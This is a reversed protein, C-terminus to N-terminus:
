FSREVYLKREIQGIIYAKDEESRVFDIVSTDFTIENQKEFGYIFKDYYTNLKKLYTLSLDKDFVQGREKVRKQLVHADCKLNIFFDPETINTIVLNYLKNYNKFENLSLINKEYLFPVFVFADEYISRDLITVKDDLYAALHHEARSSLFYTQLHFAWKPMDDYYLSLYPNDLVSEYIINWNFHKSLIKALSSKGSGLNGTLCVYKM